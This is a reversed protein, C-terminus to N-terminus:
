SPFNFHTSKSHKLKQTKSPIFFRPCSRSNLIAYFNILRLSKQYCQSYKVGKFINNRRKYDLKDTEMVGGDGSERYETVNNNIRRLVSQLCGNLNNHHFAFDCNNCSKLGVCFNCNTCNECDFCAFCNKCDICGNSDLKELGSKPFFKLKLLKKMLEKFMDRPPLQVNKISDSL